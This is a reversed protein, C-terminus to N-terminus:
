EQTDEAGRHMAKWLVYSPLMKNRWEEDPMATKFLDEAIQRPSSKRVIAMAALSSILIDTLEEVDKHEFEYIMPAWDANSM